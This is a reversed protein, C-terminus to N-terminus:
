FDLRLAARFVRVGPNDGTAGGNVGGVASIVGASATANVVLGPNSWNPHNLINTATMEARLKLREKIPIVKALGSHWVNVGPGKIIGKAASGFQGPQPAAFARTDFWRNTTRQDAPLNPDRLVDPRRSLVAPALTTTFATGTTDPGSWLPTLFQGSFLSYNGSLEWDALIYNLVGSKLGKGFPLRYVYNLNVRHTPIGM